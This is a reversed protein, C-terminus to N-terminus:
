PGERTTALGPGDSEVSPPDPREFGRSVVRHTLSCLLLRM